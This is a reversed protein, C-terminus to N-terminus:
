TGGLAPFTDTSFLSDPTFGSRYRWQLHPPTQVPRFDTMPFSLLSTCASIIRLDPSRSLHIFVMQRRHKPCNTIKHASFRSRCDSDPQRLKKYLLLNRFRIGCPMQIDQPDAWLLQRNVSLLKKLGQCCFIDTTIHMINRGIIERVIFLKAVFPSKAWFCLLEICFLDAKRKVIGHSILIYLIHDPCNGSNCLIKLSLFSYSVRFPLCYLPPSM